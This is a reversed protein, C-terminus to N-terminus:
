VEPDPAAGRPYKSKSIGPKLPYIDTQRYRYYEQPFLNEKVNMVVSLEMHLLRMLSRYYDSRSVGAIRCLASTNLLSEDKTGSRSHSQVESKGTSPNGNSRLRWIQRGCNKLVGNGVEAALEHADEQEDTDLGKGDRCLYLKGCLDM